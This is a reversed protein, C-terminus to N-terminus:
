EYSERPACTETLESVNTLRVLAALNDDNDPWGRRNSIGKNDVDFAVRLLDDVKEDDDAEEPEPVAPGVSRAREFTRTDM